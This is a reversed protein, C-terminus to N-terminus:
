CPCSQKRCDSQYESDSDQDADLDSESSIPSKDINEDTIVTSLDKHESTSTQPKDCSSIDANQSSPARESESSENSNSDNNM